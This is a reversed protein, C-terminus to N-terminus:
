LRSTLEQRVESPSFPKQLFGGIGLEEIADREVKRDAASVIIVRELPFLNLEKLKRCFVIGDMYPMYVDVLLLSPLNVLEVNKLYDIAEDGNKAEIVKDVVSHAIRSIIMRTMSDDEVVLISKNEM